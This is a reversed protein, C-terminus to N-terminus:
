IRRFPITAVIRQCSHAPGITCVSIGTARFTMRPLKPPHVSVLRETSPNAFITFTIHPDYERGVLPSGYKKVNRRMLPTWWDKEEWLRKVGYEWDFYKAMRTVLRAQLRQFWQTRRARWYGSFGPVRVYGNLQINGTSITQVIEKLESLFRPLSGRRIKIHYLSIHPLYHHKSLVFKTGFRQLRKSVAIARDRIAPPPLIVVDYYDKIIRPKM